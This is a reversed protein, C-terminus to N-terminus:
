KLLFHSGHEHTTPQFFSQRVSDKICRYHVPLPINQSTHRMQNGTKRKKKKKKMKGGERKEIQKARICM